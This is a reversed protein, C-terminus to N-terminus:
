VLRYKILEESIPYANKLPRDFKHFRFGKRLARMCAYVCQRDCNGQSMERPEALTVLHM